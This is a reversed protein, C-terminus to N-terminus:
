APYPMMAEDWDTNHFRPTGTTGELVSATDYYTVLTAHISRAAAANRQLSGAGITLSIYDPPTVIGIGTDDKLMPVLTVSYDRRSLTLLHTIYQADALPFAPNVLMSRWVGEVRALQFVRNLGTEWQPLDGLVITRAGYQRAVSIAKPDPSMVVTSAIQPISRLLELKHELSATKDGEQHFPSSQYSKVPLVAWTSM